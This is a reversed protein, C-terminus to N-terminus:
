GRELAEGAVRSVMAPQVLDAIGEAAPVDNTAHADHPLVVHYGLALASRVTASVCMESMLGCVAVNEIGHEALLSALGTGDFGDDISKRIVTEKGRQDVPLFLEWGPAGPEDVAGAPGDNQLHVVLVDRERAARVLEKITVLLDEATPFAAAPGSVFATQLDIVILAQVSRYESM